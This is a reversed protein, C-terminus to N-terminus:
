SSVRKLLTEIKSYADMLDTILEDENARSACLKDYLMQIVLGDGSCENQSSDPRGFVETYTLERITDM